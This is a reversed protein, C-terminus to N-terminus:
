QRRIHFLNGIARGAYSARRQRQLSTSRHRCLVPRALLHDRYTSPVEVRVILDCLCKLGARVCDKAKRGGERRGVYENIQKYPDTAAIRALMVFCCPTGIKGLALLIKPYPKKLSWHFTRDDTAVLENEITKIMQGMSDRAAWRNISAVVDKSLVPERERRAPRAQARRTGTTTAHVGQPPVARCSSTTCSPGWRPFWRPAESVPPSTFGKTLAM